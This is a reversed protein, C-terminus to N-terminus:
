VSLLVTMTKILNYICIFSAIIIIIGATWKIEKVEKILKKFVIIMFWLLSFQIVHTIIISTLINIM